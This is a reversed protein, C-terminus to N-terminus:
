ISSVLSHLTRSLTCPASQPVVKCFHDSDQLKINPGQMLIAQMHSMGSSMQLPMPIFPQSLETTPAMQASQSASSSNSRMCNELVESFSAGRMGLKQSPGVAVEESDEQLPPLTPSLRLRMAQTLVAQHHDSVAATPSCAARSCRASAPAVLSWSSRQVM